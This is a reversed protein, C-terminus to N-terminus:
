GSQRGRAVARETEAFVFGLSLALLPDTIEPTRSPLYVQMFETAALVGAVAATAVRLSAGGRLMLWITGGYQFVKSALISTGREWSLQLFAGFPLWTFPVAGPTFRFPYLGLVLLAALAGFGAARPRPGTIAFLLAGCAAGTLTALQPYRASILVQLPVFLTALALWAAPRPVHVAALVHGALYWVLAAGLIGGPNFPDTQLFSTVKQSITSARVVPLFPFCVAAVWCPLLLLATWDRRRVAQHELPLLTGRLLGLYAGAAAGATNMLVDIPAAVRSRMFLQGSEICASLLFAACTVLAIRPGAGAARPLVLYGALGLPLYLVLNVVADRLAFGSLLHRWRTPVLIRGPHTQFEWPYLSGYVILAIGLLLLRRL